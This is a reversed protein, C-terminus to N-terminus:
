LFLNASKIPINQLFSNSFVLFAKVKQGKNLIKTKLVTHSQHALFQWMSHPAPGKSDPHGLVCLPLPLVAMESPKVRAHRLSRVAPKKKQLTVNLFIRWVFSQRLKWFDTFKLIVLPLPLRQKSFNPSFYELTEKKKRTQKNTQLHYFLFTQLLDRSLTSSPVSPVLASLNVTQM